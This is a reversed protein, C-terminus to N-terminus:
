EYRLAEVANIRTARRAPLYCAALGVAAFLVTTAGFTVPDLPPLGFLLRGFVRAALAALGLGAASGIAVLSLGQRLVLRIVDARQAGLSLRIGIERTRQTMAYATVGYVGLSALLLGVLGVTGSVLAAIRLQLVVPGIQREELSHTSLLPLNPDMAAVLTRIDGAVRGGRITRALIAVHPSYHQQLPAYIFSVMMDRRRGGSNVDGAVGIVLTPAPDEVAAPDISSPLFKGVAEQGPWLRRATSEDVIAVPQEGARDAATFDRGAVLPIRLTRFYGPEVLTWSSPVRVDEGPGAHGRERVASTRLPGGPEQDTVTASEVGPLRRVRDALDALFARGAADRYGAMSLDLSAVEVGRPDFGPDASTVRTLARGLLGAAVVLLLSFAVQAVVFVSRLRLRDSPGQAEDKLASVVDSRSAHLAPAIGSLVAAALSLSLAFAVVRGDLPVALNIPVPFAPLVAVLLSTMARAVAVGLSGGAAFLLATETILQRVLRARGAGIALRVAMERRRGTARALLVGALNACAIVLVLSVLAMLLAVFGAAVGRLASPLPSSFAVTWEIDRSGRRGERALAGGVAAVDAAAKARSVGPKLRGGVM